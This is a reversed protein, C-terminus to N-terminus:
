PQLDVPVPPAENVLMITIRRNPPASANEPVLPETAATGSVKYINESPFGNQQLIERAANARDVSLDWPGYAPSRVRDGVATHGTIAVPYKTAHLPGALEELIRHLTEDPTKSGDPFMSSGDQDVLQINFGEKTEEMLIHRSAEALEPLDGLAQRLSAVALAFGADARSRSGHENRSPTLSSEEPLIHEAHKVHLRTPLGDVERIGADSVEKQTGFAERMSGAVKHM